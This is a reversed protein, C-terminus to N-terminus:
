IQHSESSNKSIKAITIVIMKKPNHLAAKFHFVQFSVSFLPEQSERRLRVSAKTLRAACVHYSQSCQRVSPWATDVQGMRVLKLGTRFISIRSSETAERQVFGHALQGPM